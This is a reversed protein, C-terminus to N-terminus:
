GKDSAAFCSDAGTHCAPGRPVVSILLTDDDCDATISQVLLTNGSEEGKQWLKQRTRSWFTVKKTKITQRLAAQDMFGLMLVAKTQSDQIIAPLLGDLKQFNLKDPDITSM